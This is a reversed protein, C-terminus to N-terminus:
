TPFGLDLRRGDVTQVIVHEGAPSKMYEDIAQQLSQVVVVKTLSPSSAAVSGFSVPSIASMTDRNNMIQGLEGPVFLEPGREGVLYPVGASVPGGDARAGGIAGGAAGIAMTSAYGGILSAAGIVAAAGYSAVSAFYAPERWADASARALAVDKVGFIARLAAVITQQAIWQVVIQILSAIIQRAVQTFAQGWTMTGTIAGMIGNTVGNVGLQMADMAVRAANGALEWSSSLQALGAQMNQTFSSPDVGEAMGMNNLQSFKESDTKTFDTAIRSAVISQRQQELNVIERLDSVDLRAREAEDIVGQVLAESNFRRREEIRAIADNITVLQLGIAAERSKGLIIQETILQSKQVEAIDSTRLDKFEGVTM